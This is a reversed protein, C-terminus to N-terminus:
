PVSPDHKRRNEKRELAGEFPRWERRGAPHNIQNRRKNREREREWLVEYSCYAPLQSLSVFLTLLDYFSFWFTEEYFTICHVLELSIRVVPWCFPPSSRQRRLLVHKRMVLKRQFHCKESRQSIRPIVGATSKLTRLERWSVYDELYLSVAECTQTSIKFFRKLTM